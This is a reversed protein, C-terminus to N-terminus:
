LIPYCGHDSKNNTGANDDDDDIRFVTFYAYINEGRQSFPNLTIAALIRNASLLLTRNIGDSDVGQSDFGMFCWMGDYLRPKSSM